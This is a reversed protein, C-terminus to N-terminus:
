KLIKNITGTSIIGEGGLVNVKNAKLLQSKVYSNNSDLDSTNILVIPAGNAGALASGCIADPFNEGVSVYVNTFDFNSNFKSVVATNTEYRNDGSIREAGSISNLVNDSIVGTGGIVYVKSKNDNIFKIVESNIENNGVLLIPNGNAAAYSSISLADAFGTGACLFVQSAKNLKQAVALSTEYRDRGSIREININMSKLVDEVNVSVAGTGGIIYVKKVQLRKLEEIVTLDLVRGSTLLIPANLQKALPTASLADAFEEGSALVVYDSTTWKNQSVKVSTEYRNNGGLRVISQEVPIKKDTIIYDSNHTIDFEIYGNTDIKLQSAINEIKGTSENYYYVEINNKDKNSIWNTDLKLKIKSRGPLKGNNAFSVIMLDENNVKSSIAEKNITASKDLTNIDVKMDIDKSAETIDAGKFSWQIGSQVFTVTKDTNKIADFIDKVINKNISVDVQIKSGNSASKIANIVTSSNTNSINTSNGSSSSGGGGGSHKTQVVVTRIVETAANGAADSVNYHVLYTGEVTTNISDVPSGDKTYTVVPALNTDKNDTVTVGEETYNTGTAIKVLPNGKLSIIPSIIDIILNSIESDSLINFSLDTYYGDVFYKDSIPSDEESVVHVTRTVEEAANGDSDTVAYHIVYSEEFLTSISNVLNGNKTFTIKASLSTDKDDTIRVGPDIYSTGISVNVVQEGNLTIVPITKEEVNLPNEVNVPLNESSTGESLTIDESNSIDGEEVSSAENSTSAPSTTSEADAVAAGAEASSAGPEVNVTSDGNLTIVPALADVAFVLNKPFLFAVCSLFVVFAKLYKQKKNKRIM